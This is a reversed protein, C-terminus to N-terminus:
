VTGGLVPAKLLETHNKVQERLVQDRPGFAKRMGDELV